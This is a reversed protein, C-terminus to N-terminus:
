SKAHQGRKEELLQIISLEVEACLLLGDANINACEVSILLHNIEYEAEDGNQAPLYKFEVTADLTVGNIDITISEHSM